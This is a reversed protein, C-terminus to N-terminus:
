AKNPQDSLMRSRHWAAFERDGKLDCEETVDDTIHGEGDGVM